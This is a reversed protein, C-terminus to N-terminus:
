WVHGFAVFNSTIFSTTRWDRSAARPNIIIFYGVIGVCAARICIARLVPSGSCQGVGRWAGWADGYLGRLLRAAGRRRCRFDILATGDSRMSEFSM